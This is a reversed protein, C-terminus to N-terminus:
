TNRETSDNNATAVEYVTERGIMTPEATLLLTNRLQCVVVDNVSACPEAM